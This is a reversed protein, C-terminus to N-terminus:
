DGKETRNKLDECNKGKCVQSLSREVWKLYGEKSNRWWYQGEDTVAGAEELLKMIKKKKYIKAWVYASFGNPSRSNPDAGKKLLLKVVSICNQRIAWILPTNGYSDASNIDVGENILELIARKDCLLAANVIDPTYNIYSERAKRDEKVVTYLIDREKYDLDPKPKLEQKRDGGMYEQMYIPLHYSYTTNTSTKNIQKVEENVEEKSEEIVESLTISPKTETQLNNIIIEENRKGLTTPTSTSFIKGVSALYFPDKSGKTLSKFGYFLFAGLVGLILVVGISFYLFRLLNNKTSDELSFNKKSQPVLEINIKDNELFLFAENIKELKKKAKSQLKPDDKFRDLSWVKILDEYAELIEEHSAGNQIGLIQYAQNKNM